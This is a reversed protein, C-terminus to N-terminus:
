SSRLPGWGGRDPTIIPIYIVTKRRSIKCYLVLLSPLVTPTVTDCEDRSACHWARVWAHPYMSPLTLCEPNCSESGAYADPMGPRGRSETVTCLMDVRHMACESKICSYWAPHAAEVPTKAWAPSPTYPAGRHLGPQGVKSLKLLTM